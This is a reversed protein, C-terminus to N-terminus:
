QKGGVVKKAIARLDWNTLQYTVTPEEGDIYPVKSIVYNTDLIEKIKEVTDIAGQRHGNKYAVETATHENM